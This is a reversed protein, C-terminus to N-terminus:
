DTIAQCWDTRVFLEDFKRCRSAIFLSRGYQSLSACCSIFYIVHKCKANRLMISQCRCIHAGFDISKVRTFSGFFRCRRFRVSGINLYAFHCLFISRFFWNSHSSDTVVQVIELPLTMGNLVAWCQLVYCLVTGRVCRVARSWFFPSTCCFSISTCIAKIAKLLFPIHIHLSLFLSSSSSCFTNGYKAMFVKRIPKWKSSGNKREKEENWVSRYCLKKVRVFCKRGNLVYIICKRRAFPHKAVINTLWIRLFIQRSFYELRLQFLIQHFSLYKNM